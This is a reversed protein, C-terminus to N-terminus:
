VGDYIERTEGCEPCAHNKLRAVGGVGLFLSLISGALVGTAQLDLEYVYGVQM